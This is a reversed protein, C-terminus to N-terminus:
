VLVPKIYNIISEALIDFVDDLTKCKDLGKVELKGFECKVRPKKTDVLVRSFALESKIINKLQEETLDKPKKNFIEKFFKGNCPSLDVELVDKHLGSIICYLRVGAGFSEAKNFLNDNHYNYKMINSLITKDIAM